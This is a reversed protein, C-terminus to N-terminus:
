KLHISVFYPVKSSINTITESSDKYTLIVDENLEFNLSKSAKELSDVAQTYNFFEGKFEINLM